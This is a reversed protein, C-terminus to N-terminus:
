LGVIDFEVFGSVAQLNGFNFIAYAGYRGPKIDDHGVTGMLNVISQISENPQVAWIHSPNGYRLLMLGYHFRSIVRGDQTKVVLDLHQFPHGQWEIEIPESSVNTLKVEAKPFPLGDTSDAQSHIILDCVLKVPQKLATM